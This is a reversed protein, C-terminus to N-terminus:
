VFVGELILIENLLTKFINPNYVKIIKPKFAYVSFCNNLILIDSWFETTGYLDESVLKPKYKYKLQDEYTLSISSIAPKLYDRYKNTISEFPIKINRGSYNDRLIADHHLTRYSIELEKIISIQEPMTSPIEM